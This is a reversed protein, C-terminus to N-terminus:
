AAEKAHKEYEYIIDLYSQLRTPYNDCFPDPITEHPFHVRADNLREIVTETDGPEILYDFIVYYLFRDLLERDVTFNVATKLVEPFDARSEIDVTLGKAGYHPRGCCIVPKGYILAELGVNSSFTMVVDAAEILSHIGANKVVYAKGSLVGSRLCNSEDKPHPKYAMVWGDPLHAHVYDLMEECSDFIDLGTVLNADHPVQGPIFLLRSNVPKWKLLDQMEYGDCPQVYKSVRGSMWRAIYRGLRARQDPTLARQRVEEWDRDIMNQGRFFHMGVSDLLIRGPFFPTEWLLAPIGLKTCKSYCMKSVPESGQHVIVYDPRCAKLMEGIRYAIGRFRRYYLSDTDLFHPAKPYGEAVYVHSQCKVFDIDDHCLQHYQRRSLPPITGVGGDSITLYSGKLGILESFPFITSCWYNVITVEIGADDMTNVLPSILGINGPYNM